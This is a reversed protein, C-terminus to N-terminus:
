TSSTPRVSPLVPVQNSSLPSSETSAASGISTFSSQNPSILATSPPPLSTTPSLLITHKSSESHSPPRVTSASSISTSSPTRSPDPYASRSRIETCQTMYRSAEAYLRDFEGGIEERVLRDWQPLVSTDKPSEVLAGGPTTVVVEYDPRRKRFETLLALALELFLELDCINDRQHLLDSAVAMYATLLMPPVRRQINEARMFKNFVEVWPTPTAPGAEDIVYGDTFYPQFQVDGQREASRIFMMRSLLHAFEICLHMCSGHVKGLLMTDDTDTPHNGLTDAGKQYVALLGLAHARTLVKEQIRNLPALRQLETAKKTFLPRLQPLNEQYMFDMLKKGPVSMFLHLLMPCTLQIAQDWYDLHTQGCKLLSFYVMDDVDLDNPTLRYVARLFPASISVRALRAIAKSDIGKLDHVLWPNPTEYLRARTNAYHYTNVQNVTESSSDKALYHLRDIGRLAIESVGTQRSLLLLTAIQRLYRVRQQPSQASSMATLRVSMKNDRDILRHHMGDNLLLNLCCGFASARDQTNHTPSHVFYCLPNACVPNSCVIDHAPDYVMIRLNILFLRDLIAMDKERALRTLNWQAIAPLDLSVSRIARGVTMLNRTLDNPHAYASNRRVRSLLQDKLGSFIVEEQCFKRFVLDWMAKEYAQPTVPPPPQQSGRRTPPNTSRQSSPSNSVSSSASDVQRRRPHVNPNAPSMTGPSSSHSLRAHPSEGSRRLSGPGPVATTPHSLMDVTHRFYKSHSPSSSTSSSSSSSTAPLTDTVTPIVYKTSTATKASSSPSHQHHTHSRVKNDAVLSTMYQKRRTLTSRAADRAFLLGEEDFGATRPILRTFNRSSRDAEPSTSTVPVQGTNMPPAITM